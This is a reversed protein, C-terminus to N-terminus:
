YIYLGMIGTFTQTYL